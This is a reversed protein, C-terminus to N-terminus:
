WVLGELHSKRMRRRQVFNLYRLKKGNVLANEKKISKILLLVATKCLECFDPVEAVVKVLWAKAKHIVQEM